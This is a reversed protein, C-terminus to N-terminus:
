TLSGPKEYTGLIMALVSSRCTKCFFHPLLRDLPAEALQPYKSMLTYPHMRKRTLGVFVEVAIQIILQRPRYNALSQPFYWAIDLFVILGAVTSWM